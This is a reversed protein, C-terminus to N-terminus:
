HFMEIGPSGGPAANFDHRLDGGQIPPSYNLALYPSNDTVRCGCFACFAYDMGLMHRHALYVAGTM